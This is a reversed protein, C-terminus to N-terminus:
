AASGFEAIGVGVALFGDLAAQIQQEAVLLAQVFGADRAEFFQHADVLRQGGAVREFFLQLRQLTRWVLGGHALGQAVPARQRACRIDRGQM